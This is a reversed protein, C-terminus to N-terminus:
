HIPTGLLEEKTVRPIVIRRGLKIAPLEGRAVLEYALGRSINLLYAVEDVTLVLRDNTSSPKRRRIGRRPGQRLVWPHSRSSGSSRPHQRDAPQHITPIVTNVDRAALTVNSHVQIAMLTVNGRSLTVNSRPRFCTLTVNTRHEANALTVNRAVKPYARNSCESRPLGLKGRHCHSSPSLM